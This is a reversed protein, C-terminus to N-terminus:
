KKFSVARKRTIRGLFQRICIMPTAVFSPSQRTENQVSSGGVRSVFMADPMEFWPGKQIKFL